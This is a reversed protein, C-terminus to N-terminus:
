EENLIIKAVQKYCIAQIRKHYMGKIGLKSLIKIMFCHQIKGLANDGDISIM